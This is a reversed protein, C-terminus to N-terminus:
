PAERKVGALPARFAGRKLEDAQRAIWRTVEAHPLLGQGDSVYDLGKLVEAYPGFGSVRFPIVIARGDAAADRVYARIHTEAAIRHARWDERLTMARVRRFPVARRVTEARAELSRLWRANEAEDGPGHALILVDERGPDRSLARARDTLVSGMEPADALGQTSLAFVAGSEIRWLEMRDQRPTACPASELATAPRTPAGERLGLIQETREYWSEGSVFLRVVGVKTVGRSELRRVADQLSAADAMGFAIEVAHDNRLPEVAKTIEANWADSGGHAMVLVGYDGAGGSAAAPDRSDCGAAALVAAAV